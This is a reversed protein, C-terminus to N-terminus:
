QSNHADLCSKVADLYGYGNLTDPELYTGECWENWANLFLFESGEEAVNQVQKSFYKKFKKPNAGLIVLGNKGKRPTNDWALFAGRFEQKESSPKRRLLHKWIADYRYILLNNGTFLNFVSKSLKDAIRAILTRGHKLTFMPEFNLIADANKCQVQTQFTNKEEVLYIGGLGSEKCRRDLYAIMEECNPIDNTRYLVFMPKGDVLIYKEDQFFPLLYQFHAEWEPEGGSYQAMLVEKNNGDWARTWPENAWCFCYPIRCELTRMLELPKELLLKGNFWYHYYCFGYVGHSAALEMQRELASPDLLNYYRDEAPVRPQQHGSFLPKSKKINVWETFGEGWWADNEPIAHFQPLHFAILKVSNKM